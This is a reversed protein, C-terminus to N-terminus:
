EKIRGNTKGRNQGSPSAYKQSVNSEDTASAAISGDDYDHRHLRSSTNEFTKRPFVRSTDRVVDRSRRFRRLRVSFIILRPTCPRLYRRTKGLRARSKPTTSSTCARVDNEARVPTASLFRLLDVAANRCYKLDYVIIDFAAVRAANSM